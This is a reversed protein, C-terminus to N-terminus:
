LAGHDGSLTFQNLDTSLDSLWGLEILVCMYVCIEAACQEHILFSVINWM